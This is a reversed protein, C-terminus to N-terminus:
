VNTDCVGSDVMLEKTIMSLKSLWQIIKSNAVGLQM